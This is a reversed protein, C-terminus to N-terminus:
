KRAQLVPRTNAVWKIVSFLYCFQALAVKGRINRTLKWIEM